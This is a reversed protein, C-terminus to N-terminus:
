LRIEAVRTRGALDRHFVVSASPLYKKIATKIYLRQVSGIELFIIGNKDLHNGCTKIIADLLARGNDKAVLSGRPEYKLEPYKKLATSYEKTSLYPPNSVIIDFRKPSAPYLNARLIRVRKECGFHKVNKRALSLAKSSIDTGVLNLKPHQLALTIAICGSGTGIDLINKKEPYELLYRSVCEVLVETDPRPILVSSNVFFASGYFEKYGVLYACPVRQARKKIFGRFGQLQKKSFSQESHAFLYSREVKLIHALLVESDLQSTSIAAKKLLKQSEGLAQFITM